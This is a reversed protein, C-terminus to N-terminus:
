LPAGEERRATRGDQAGRAAEGDRLLRELRGKAAPLAAALLVSLVTEEFAAQDEPPHFRITM